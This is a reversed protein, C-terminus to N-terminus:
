CTKLGTMARSRTRGNRLGPAVEGVGLRWDLLQQAERIRALRGVRGGKVDGSRGMADAERPRWEV